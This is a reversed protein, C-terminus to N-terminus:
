SGPALEPATGGKFTGAVTEGRVTWWILCVASQSARSLSSRLYVPRESLNRVGFFEIAGEIAVVQELDVAVDSTNDEVEVVALDFHM